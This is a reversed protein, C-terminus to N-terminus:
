VLNAIFYRFIKGAASKRRPKGRGEKRRGLHKESTLTAASDSMGACRLRPNSGRCGGGGGGSADYISALPRAPDDAGGGTSRSQTSSIESLNSDTSPRHHRHYSSKMRTIIQFNAENTNLNVYLDDM